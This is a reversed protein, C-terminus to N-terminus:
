CSRQQRDATSAAIAPPVIRRAAYVAVLFAVVVTLVPPLLALLAPALAGAVGSALYARVRVATGSLPASGM